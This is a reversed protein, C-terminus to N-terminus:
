LTQIQLNILINNPKLHVWMRPSTSKEKLKLKSINKLCFILNPNEPMISFAYGYDTLIDTAFGSTYHIMEMERDEDMDAVVNIWIHDPDDPSSTLNNYIIEPFKEKVKNFLYEILEQQKLNIKM